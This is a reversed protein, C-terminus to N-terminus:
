DDADELASDFRASREKIDRDLWALREFLRDIEDQAEHIALSRKTIADPDGSAVAENLASEATAIEQELASIREEARSMEQKLPALERARQSILEARRARSERRSRQGSRRNKAPGADAASEGSWGVTSLFLDYSGEFVSVTGRDFVILRNALARLIMESHTVIVVGGGFQDLAAVLSDISEMDLHNTPEDLLLLNAPQVLLKGLLVRSREGGSLVRIPKLANDGEFMMSGCVARVASRALLPAAAQIEQEITNSRTLRDINTQGFYGVALNESNTLRGATPSREGALLNLLTTKGRGNPGIVGIRDGKAIAFTLDDILRPLDPAFSFGLEDIRMLWRGPFPAERFSFDLKAIENLEKLHERKDLQKIRSQVARARSAQARFRNIFREAQERRKEERLRTQEHIEEEAAIQEYLAMTSGHVKKARQRHLGLTHTCVTDMFERDHTIVMLEGPWSRLFNELWRISTIDLYNTPEDLLLLNPESVLVKALQLRVQFGGSLLQPDQERMERSFGLGQLVSEVKYTEEWGEERTPLAKAGERVVTKETLTIYQSLYGISYGKPVFVEGRDASEEGAILRFLTTKGEGNRGVIGLRERPGLSFSVDEFLVRHGYSKALSRIQIM